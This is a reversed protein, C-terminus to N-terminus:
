QLVDPDQSVAMKAHQLFVTVVNRTVKFSPYPLVNLSVAEDFEATEPREPDNCVRPSGQRLGQHSVTRLVLIIAVLGLQLTRWSEVCSGHVQLVLLLRTGYKPLHFSKHQDCTILRKLASSTM